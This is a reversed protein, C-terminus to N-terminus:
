RSRKKLEALVDDFSVNKEVLLVLSHFWLDAIESVLRNKDPNKAAIVTEVAEEGVKQIIRDEGERFLSAVYSGEPKERRRNKITQFLDNLNM